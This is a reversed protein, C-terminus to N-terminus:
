QRTGFIIAFLNDLWALVQEAFGPEGTVNLAAPAQYPQGTATATATVAAPEGDVEGGGEDGSSGSDPGLLARNSTFLHVSNDGIGTGVALFLGDASLALSDVLSGGTDMMWSMRGDRDFICVASGSAAAVVRAGSSVATAHVAAATPHKWLHEGGRTSLYVCRDYSGAAVYDGGPSISVSKVSKGAGYSWMEGKGRELLYVEQNDCGAAVYTGDYSVAVGNADEELVYSWLVEQDRDFLYVSGDDSGTAIVSANPAVAVCRYAFTTKNNWMEEGTRNFLYLKDAGVAVYTGEPSVAVGFIQSGVPRTWLLYGSQNLLYVKNAAGAVVTSGDESVAVGTVPAGTEYRWLSGYTREDAAATGCLLLVSIVFICIVATHGCFRGASGARVRAPRGPPPIRVEANRVGSPPSRAAGCDSRSAASIRSLSTVEGVSM